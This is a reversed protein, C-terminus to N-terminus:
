NSDCIGPGVLVVRHVKLEGDVPYGPGFSPQGLILEGSMEAVIDQGTKKSLEEVIKSLHAHPNSALVRVWYVRGSKCDKITQREANWTLEGRVGQHESLPIACAGLISILLAVVQRKM